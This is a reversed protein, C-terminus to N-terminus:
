GVTVKIQRPKAKEATPLNLTLVGHKLNAGIRAQDVKESLEFQRFYNVLEFERHVPSGPVTHSTKGQITLLNEEVRIALDDKPVGPLDATLVLGDRTEYIDVPPVVYREQARTGEKSVPTEPTTTVPVTKEAM